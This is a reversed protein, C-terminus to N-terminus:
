DLRLQVFQQSMDKVPSLGQFQIQENYYDLARRRAPGNKPLEILLTASNEIEDEVDINLVLVRAAGENLFEQVLKISEESSGLEGLTRPMRHPSERLWQLADRAGHYSADSVFPAVVESDARQDGWGSQSEKFDYRPLSSDKECAAFYRKKSVRRGLIYFQQTVLEGGEDWVRQRGHPAGNKLNMESELIGNAYWSRAFGSERNYDCEFTLQGHVNWERSVM